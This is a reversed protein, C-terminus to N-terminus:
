GHRLEGIWQILALVCLILGVGSIPLSTALGWFLFAIGFGMVAPAYTPRPLTVPQPIHWGSPGEPTDSPPQSRPTPPAPEHQGM